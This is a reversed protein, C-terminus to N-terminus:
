HQMCLPATGENVNSNDKVLSAIYRLQMDLVFFFSYFCFRLTLLFGAGMTLSEQGHRLPPFHRHRCPYGLELLMASFLIPLIILITM